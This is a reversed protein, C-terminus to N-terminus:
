NIQCSADIWKLGADIGILEEYPNIAVKLEEFPNIAVKLEEYPNIAVKLEEHPNIAM